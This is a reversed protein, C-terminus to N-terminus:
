ILPYSYEYLDFYSFEKIIKFYTNNKIWEKNPEKGTDKIDIYYGAKPMNKPFEKYFDEDWPWTARTEIKTYYAIAPYLTHTYITSNKSIIEKLYGSANKLESSRNFMKQEEFNDAGSFYGFHLYSIVFLLIAFITIIKFYQKKLKSYGYASLIFLPPIAPLFYRVEKHPTLSFYILFSLFWLILFIESKLIKDKNIILNSIYILLGLICPLAVIMFAAELYFVPNIVMPISEAAIKQAKLILSIFSGQTLEVWLIYPLCVLITSLLFYSVSKIKKKLSSSILILVIFSLPIFMLSTFRMLFSLGCFIGGFILFLNKGTNKWKFLFYFLFLSLTLAPIDNMIKPTWHLIFPASILLISSIVGVKKNFLEKALLFIGIIAASFFLSILIQSGTEINLVLSILYILVIILPPRYDIESYYPTNSDLNEASSLFVAEDWLYVPTIQIFCIVFAFVALSSVIYKSIDKNKKDKNNSNIM